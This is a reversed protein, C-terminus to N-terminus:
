HKTCDKWLSATPGIFLFSGIPRNEQNLGAYSRKIAKVVAEVAEDQGVIKSKISDALSKLRTTNDTSVVTSPLKLM